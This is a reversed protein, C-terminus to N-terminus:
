NSGEVMNPCYKYEMRVNSERSEFSRVPDREHRKKESDIYEQIESLSKAREIGDDWQLFRRPHGCQPNYQMRLAMPRRTKTGGGVQNFQFGM